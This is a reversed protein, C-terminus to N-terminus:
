ISGEALLTREVFDGFDPISTNRPRRLLYVPVEQILQQLFAWLVGEKNFGSVMNERFIQKRLFRLKRIGKLPICKLEGEAPVQALIYISKLPQAERILESAKIRFQSKNSKFVVPVPDTLFDAHAIQEVSNKWLRMVQLSPSALYGNRASDWHLVCKDDTFLPYGRSRLQAAITSKGMGSHGCFLHLHGQHLVGSAHLAFLDNLHLVGSLVLGYFWAMATQEEAKIKIDFIIETRNSRKYVLFAGINKPVKVYYITENYIFNSEYTTDPLDAAPPKVTGYQLTVDPATLETTAILGDLPIESQILLGFVKYTHQPAHNKRM